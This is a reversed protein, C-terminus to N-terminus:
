RPPTQQKCAVIEGGWGGVFFFAEGKNKTMEPRLRGHCLEFKIFPERISLRNAIYQNNLQKSKVNFNNICIVCLHNICNLRFDKSSVQYVIASISNALCM